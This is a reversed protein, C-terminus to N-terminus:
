AASPRPPPSLPSLVVTAILAPPTSAAQPPAAPAAIRLVGSLVAPGGAFIRPVDSSCRCRIAAGTDTRDTTGAHAHHGHPAAAAPTSGAASHHHMPCDDVRVGGHTHAGGACAVVTGLVAVLVQVGLTAAAAATLHHRVRM